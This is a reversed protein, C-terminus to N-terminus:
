AVVDMGCALGRVIPFGFGEYFSPFIMMRAGRHLQEIIAGSIQGSAVSTVNRDRYDSQGIVVFQQDPLAESLVAIAETLGKHALANGVLLVHGGAARAPAEPVGYEAYHCSLYAVTQAVHPAVPFRYNFRAQTFRSIHAIGDAEAGLMRWLPGVDRALSYLI